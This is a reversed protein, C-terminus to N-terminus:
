DEIKFCCRVFFSLAHTCIQNWKRITVNGPIACLGREHRWEAGEPDKGVEGVLGVINCLRILLM